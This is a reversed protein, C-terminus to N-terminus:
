RCEIRWGARVYPRGGVMSAFVALHQWEIGACHCHVLDVRTRSSVVKGQEVIRVNTFLIKGDKSVVGWLAATQEPHKAVDIEAGTVSVNFALDASPGSHSIKHLKLLRLPGSRRCPFTIPNLVDPTGFSNSLTPVLYSKHNPTM